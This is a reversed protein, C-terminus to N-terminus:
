ESAAPIPTQMEECLIRLFERANDLNKGYRLLSVYGSSLWFYRDMGSLYRLSIGYLHKDRSTAETGWGLDMQGFGSLVNMLEQDDELPLLAGNTMMNEFMSRPLIYLDGGQTAMRVTLYQIATDDDPIVTLEMKQMDSMQNERVREMWANFDQELSAGCVIVEIKKDDPIRPETVTYLLDVGLIGLVLVLLYKWWNYTFHNKLTDRNLISKM